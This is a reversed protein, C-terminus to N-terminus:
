LNVIHEYNEGDMDVITYMGDFNVDYMGFEERDGIKLYGDFYVECGTHEKYDVSFEVYKSDELCKEELYERLYSEIQENTLKM